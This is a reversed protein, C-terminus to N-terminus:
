AEGRAFTTMYDAQSKRLAAVLAFALDHVATADLDISTRAEADGVENRWILSLRVAGGYGDRYDSSSPAASVEGEIDIGRVSPTYEAATM